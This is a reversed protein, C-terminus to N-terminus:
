AVMKQELVKKVKTITASSKGTLAVIERITFGKQLFQVILPHREILKDNTQVSGIKRGKFKGNVKAIAIGESQREKLRMREMQAVSGMVAITMMAIPNEEGDHTLTEFGEKLSKINIKNKKFTEITSLIDILNRGLRDVSDIVITTPQNTPTIENFLRQAEPREFFPIAGSIKDLFLNESNLNGFNRFNEIQRSSNQGITSVRSYFYYKM